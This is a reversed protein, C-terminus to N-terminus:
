IYEIIIGFFVEFGVSSRELLFVVSLKIKRFEVDILVPCEISQANQVRSVTRLEAPGIAVTGDVFFSYPTVLSSYFPHRILM